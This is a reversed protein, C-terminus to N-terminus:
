VVADSRQENAPTATELLQRQRQLDELSGGNSPLTRIADEFTASDPPTNAAWDYSFVRAQASAVHQAAIFGLGPVGDIDSVVLATLAPFKRIICLSQIPELLQGLGHRPVGILRGLQDYTLTQRKSACLTLLPWIQTAREGKTM